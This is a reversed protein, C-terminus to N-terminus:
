PVTLTKRMFVTDRGDVERREYETYGIRAYLARNETMMANTYLRVERLGLRLAEAEALELLRGGLGRGQVAPEVAVNELLLYDARPDLVLVGMCQGEAGELLFSLSERLVTSYDALVPKPPRPLRGEYRAYARQVCQAVAEADNPTARRLTLEDM